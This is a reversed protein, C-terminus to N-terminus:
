LRKPLPLEVRVTTGRGPHAHHGPRVQLTGELAAVRERMGLLGLARHDGVAETPVGVGDDSVQLSLWGPRTLDLLLHVFGAQAHKRVNNLSEQAVRYICTTVAESLGEIEATEGLLEVEVQLGGTQEAERALHQLASGLDGADLASPRLENVIRRLEAHLDRATSNIRELSQQRAQADDQAVASHVQLQLAALSQQLGDHIDQAIRKREREEASRLGARLQRIRDHTADVEAIRLEARQTGAVGESALGRVALSLRRGARRALLLAAAMSGALALAVLGAMRLHPQYYAWPEVELRLDWHSLASAQVATRAGASHTAAFALPQAARHALVQGAQDMLTASWGEPLDFQQLLRDLRRTSVVAFWAMPPERGPLAQVVTVVQESLVPGPVRDSVAPRATRFSEELASRGAPVPVTPLPAGLSLRSHVLMQRDATALFVPMGFAKDLAVAQEHARSLGLPRDLHLVQLAKMADIRRQLLVDVEHALLAATRQVTQEQREEIRQWLALGLLLSVAVVPALLAVVLRRLHDDIPRAQALTM